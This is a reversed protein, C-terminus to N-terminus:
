WIYKGLFYFAFWLAMKQICQPSSDCLWRKFVNPPSPYKCHEIQLEIGGAWSTRMLIGFGEGKRLESPLMWVEKVTTWGRIGYDSSSKTIRSLCWCAAVTVYWSVVCILLSRTVLFMLSVNSMWCAVTRAHSKSWTGSWDKVKLALAPQCLQLSCKQTVFITHFQNSHLFKPIYDFSVTILDIM